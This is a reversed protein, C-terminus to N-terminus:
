GRRFPGGRKSERDEKQLDSIQRLRESLVGGLLFDTMSSDPLSSGKQDIEVRGIQGDQFSIHDLNLQAFYRLLEADQEPDSLMNELDLLAGRYRQIWHIVQDRNTIAIDHAMQEDTGALRTTDRFGTSALASLEPWAESDRNLRFLASAAFLPLHSIAAAYADHEEADMYVPEAGLAKTLGAVTEVAAASASRSPVIM